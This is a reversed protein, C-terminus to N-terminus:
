VDEWELLKEVSENKELNKDKFVESLMIKQIKYDYQKKQDQRKCEKKRKFKEITFRNNESQFLGDKFIINEKIYEKFVSDIKCLDEDTFNISKLTIKVPLNNTLEKILNEASPIMEKYIDWYTCPALVILENINDPKPTLYYNKISEVIAYFPSDASQEGNKDSTGLVKLEVYKVINNKCIRIDVNEKQSKGVQFQNWYEPYDTEKNDVSKKHTILREIFTENSDIKLNKISGPETGNDFTYTIHQRNQWYEKNKVDSMIRQKFPVVLGEAPPEILSPIFETINQAIKQMDYNLCNGNKLDNFSINIKDCIIKMNSM